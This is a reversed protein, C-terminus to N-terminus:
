EREGQAETESVLIPGAAFIVASLQSIPRMMNKPVTHNTDNRKAALQIGGGLVDRLPMWGAIEVRISDISEIFERSAHTPIEIVTWAAVDARYLMRAFQSCPVVFGYREWSERTCSKVEIMGFATNPVSVDCFKDGADSSLVAEHGFQALAGVISMEGLRGVFLTGLDSSHSGNMRATQRSSEEDLRRAAWSLCTKITQKEARMFM